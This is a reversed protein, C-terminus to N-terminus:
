KDSKKMLEDYKALLERAKEEDVKVGIGKQYHLALNYICKAHNAKAGMEYYNVAKVNDM